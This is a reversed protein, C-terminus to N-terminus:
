IVRRFNIQSKGPLGTTLVESELVLPSPEIGAQLAFVGCAEHDFFDSCSYCFGYQLLNVLSKLITWM